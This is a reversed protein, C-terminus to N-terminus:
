EEGGDNHLRQMRQASRSMRAQPALQPTTHPPQEAFEDDLGDDPAALATSELSETIYDLVDRVEANDELLGDFPMAVGSVTRVTQGVERLTNDIGVVLSRMVAALEQREQVTLNAFGIL